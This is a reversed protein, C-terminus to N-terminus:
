STRRPFPQKGNLEVIDGLDICFRNYKREREPIEIKVEDGPDLLADMMQAEEDGYCEFMKFGNETTLTFFYENPDAPNKQFRESKLTGRMYMSEMPKPKNEAMPRRQASQESCGVLGLGAAGLLLAHPAIRRYLRM